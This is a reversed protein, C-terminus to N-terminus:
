RYRFVVESNNLTNEGWLASLKTYDEGHHHERFISLLFDLAVALGGPLRSANVALLAFTCLLHAM